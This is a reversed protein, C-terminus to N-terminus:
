TNLLNILGLIVLKLVKSKIIKARIQIIMKTIYKSIVLIITIQYYAKFHVIQNLILNISIIVERHILRPRRM